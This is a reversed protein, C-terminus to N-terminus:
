PRSQDTGQGARRADDEEGRVVEIYKEIYHKAKELDQLRSAGKRRYIYKLISGQFFDLKLGVIADWPQMGVVKYHSGGVQVDNAAM